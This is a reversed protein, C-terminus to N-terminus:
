EADGGDYGSQVAGRNPGPFDECVREEHCTTLVRDSPQGLAPFPVTLM